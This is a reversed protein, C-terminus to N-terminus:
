VKELCVKRGKREERRATERLKWRSRRETWTLNEDIAERGRMKRKKEM